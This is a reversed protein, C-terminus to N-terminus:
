WNCPYEEGMGSFRGQGCFKVIDEDQFFMIQDMGSPDGQERTNRTATIWYEDHVGEATGINYSFHANPSDQPNEIDLTKKPLFVCDQYSGGSMLYCREMSSRIAAIATLAETSRSYEIIKFFRPLAVSALVGVIIIVVILELLTFSRINMKKLFIVKKKTKSILGVKSSIVM